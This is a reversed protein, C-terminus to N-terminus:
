IKNTKNKIFFQYVLEGFLYVGFILLVIGSLFLITSKASLLVPLIFGVMIFIYLIFFVLKFYFKRM